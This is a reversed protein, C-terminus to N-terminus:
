NQNGVPHHLRDPISVACIQFYNGPAAPNPKMFACWNEDPSVVCAWTGPAAADPVKATLRFSKGDTVESLFISNDM